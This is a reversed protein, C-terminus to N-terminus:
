KSLSHTTYGNTINHFLFDKPTGVRHTVCQEPLYPVFTLSIFFSVQFDVKKREKKKLQFVRTMTFLSSYCPLHVYNLDHGKKINVYKM